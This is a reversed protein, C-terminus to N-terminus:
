RCWLAVSVFHVHVLAQLQRDLDLRDVANVFHLPVRDTLAIKGLVLASHAHHLLSGVEVLEGRVAFVVLFPQGRDAHLGVRVVVLHVPEARLDGEALVDIGHEASASVGLIALELCEVILQLLFLLVLALTLTHRLLTKIQVLGIVTIICYPVQLSSDDCM